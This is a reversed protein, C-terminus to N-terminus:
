SATPRHRGMISSIKEQDNLLQKPIGNQAWATRYRDLDMLAQALVNTDRGLAGEAQMLQAQYPQPDIDIPADGKQM